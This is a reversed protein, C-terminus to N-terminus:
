VPVFSKMVFCILKHAAISYGVFAFSRENEKIARQGNKILMEM